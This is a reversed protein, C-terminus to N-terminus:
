KLKCCDSVVTLIFPMAIIGIAVYGMGVSTMRRDDASRRARFWASTLNKQVRLQETIGRLEEKMLQKLEANTYNHDSSKTSQDILQESSSCRCKCRSQSENKDELLPSPFVASDSTANVYAATTYYTTTIQSKIHSPVAPTSGCFPVDCSEWRIRPDMTYCWPGESEEDPNRCYNEHDKMLETNLHDHPFRSDWRQCPIYSRTM